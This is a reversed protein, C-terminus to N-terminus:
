AICTFVTQEIAHTPCKPLRRGLFANVLFGLLPLLPILLLM